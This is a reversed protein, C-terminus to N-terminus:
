LMEVPETDSCNWRSAIGAPIITIDGPNLIDEFHQGNIKATVYVPRGLQVMICHNDVGPMDLDGSENRVHLIRINQWGLDKSSAIVSEPYVASLDSVPNNRLRKRYDYIQQGRNRSYRNGALDALPLYTETNITQAQYM